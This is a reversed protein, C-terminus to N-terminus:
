FLEIDSQYNNNHDQDPPIQAKAFADMLADQKKMTSKFDNLVASMTEHIESSSDIRNMADDIAESLRHLLYEEQESELGMRLLDMNLEENMNNIVERGQQQSEIMSKVLYYFRTRIRGTSQVLDKSQQLLAIEMKVVNTRSNAASLLVPLIDKIQGYREMNDLPMNRVLLSINSYNIITTAGFDFFRQSKDSQELLETEIPKLVGDSSFWHVKDDINIMVTCEIGLRDTVDFLGLALEEYTKYCYTKEMFSMAAALENTGTMAAMATKKALEYQSVLEDREHKYRHLVKVKAILNEAEFPKVLYDDGGADYGQMRELLSSHGSLFIIPINKTLENARLRECVEYGNIGPMEVDLLIVDPVKAFASDLAQEGNEALRCTIESGDFTRSIIKRALKDDDVALLDINHDHDM